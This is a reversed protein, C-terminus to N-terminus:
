HGGHHGGASKGELRRNIAKLIFDCHAVRPHDEDFLKMYGARAEEILVKSRQYDGTFFLVGGLNNKLVLTQLYDPGHSETVDAVVEELVNAAEENLGQKHTIMALNSRALLTELHKEGYLDRYYRLSAEALEHARELDGAKALAEMLSNRAVTAIQSRKGFQKNYIDVNKELLSIATETEGYRLHVKALGDRLDCSIPHDEGFHELGRAGADVFIQEAREQEGMTSLLGAFTVEFALTNLHEPGLTQLVQRHYRELLDKAEPLKGDNILVRAYATVFRLTRPHQSGYRKDTRQLLSEGLDLASRNKSLADLYQFYLMETDLRLPHEPPLNEQVQNLLPQLVAKTEGYRATNFFIEAAVLELELRKEKGEDYEPHSGARIEALNSMALDYRGQAAAVKALETRIQWLELTDEQNGQSLQTEAESLLRQAQDLRGLSLYTEGMIRMLSARTAAPMDEARPLSFSANDLVDVVRVFRGRTGPNAASLMDGLFLSMQEAKDRELRVEKSRKIWIGATVTISLALLACLTTAARHRQTFKRFRYLHSAQAAHIPYGELHRELEESLEDVTHYRDGANKCMAKLIVADLDGKLQKRLTKLSVKRLNATEQPDPGKGGSKGLLAQSPRPPEDEVITRTMEYPTKGAFNFPVRGSLLLFLLTGLGYVDTSTTVPENTVQEPAACNPTMIIQHTLTMDESGTTQPNLIKAIGFDLLKIHGDKTVFINGPKLDRHIILNRHAFAVAECIQRFLAIRQRITLRHHDCYTDVAQGDVYEMIFYPYGEETVGSDYFQAIYPHKLGALIRYEQLFRRVVEEGAAPKSIVKVAAKHVLGEELREGLYVSGMGGQGLCTVLKYAGCQHGEMDPAPEVADALNNQLVAGSDGLFGSLDDKLRLLGALERAAKEDEGALRRLYDSWQSEPLELVEDLHQNLVKLTDKDQM